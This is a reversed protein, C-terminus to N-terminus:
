FFIGTYSNLVTHTFGAVDHSRRSLSSIRKIYFLSFSWLGFPLPFSNHYNFELAFNEIFYGLWKSKKNTYFTKTDYYKKKWSM